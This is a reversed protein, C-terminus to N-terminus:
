PRSRRAQRRALGCGVPSSAQMRRTRRLGGGPRKPRARGPRNRRGGPTPRGPRVASPQAQVKAPFAGIGLLLKPEVGGSDPQPVNSLFRRTGEEDGSVRYLGEALVVRAEPELDISDAEEVTRELFRRATDADAVKGRWVRANLRFWWSLSEAAEEHLAECVRRLDEWRRQEMLELGAGFLMTSRLRGTAEEATLWEAGASEVRVRAAAGLLEDISLFHAAAEAWGELLNWEDRELEDRVSSGEALLDLPEALEFLRRGEEAYGADRLVVSLRLGEDKDVLLLRGDRLHESAVQGEGVRLLLEALTPPKLYFERQELEYGSLILHPISTVDQLAAASRLSLRIDEKAARAPRFSRFQERFREQNALELVKGNEGAMFRHYLEEWAQYSGEPEQACREALQRHYDRDLADDFGEPLTEATKQLLFLRFSNHFFYWRHRGEVRFYHAM